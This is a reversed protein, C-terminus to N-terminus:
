RRAHVSGGSERPPALPLELALRAGPGDVFYARGGHLRVVHAILALGIGHGPVESARDKPTRYFPEFVRERESAQVGPGQDQVSLVAVEPNLGISVIVPGQSYKLANDLANTLMAVLLARDGRVIASGASHEIRARAQQPFADLADEVVDLLDLQEPAEGVANPRALILLRDVLSSLRDAQRRVRTLESRLEDPARELTLDIEGLMAALPTRLQHAADRAFRRSQLLAAGLRKFADNLSGRLADIELVGDSPGLEAAGPDDDPVARVRQNLRSLPKVVRRAVAFSALAGFLGTIAVAVFSALLTAHKRERMPTADRATVVNWERVARACTRFHGMDECTGAKVPAVADDGLVRKDGEYIAICIGSQEFEELEHEADELAHPEKELEWAVIDAAERLHRDELAATLSNTLTNSVAAVVSGAGLVSLATTLAIRGVLSGPLFNM